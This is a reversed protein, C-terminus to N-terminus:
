KNDVRVAFTRCTAMAEPLFKQRELDDKFTKSIEAVAGLCGSVVAGAKVARTLHQSAVGTSFVQGATLGAGQANGQTGGNFSGFVSYADDTEDAFKANQAQRLQQLLAEDESLFDIERDVAITHKTILAELAVPDKTPGIRAIDAQVTAVAAPDAADGTAAQLEALRANLRELEKLKSANDDKDKRAESLQTQLGAVVTRRKSVANELSSIKGADTSTEDGLKNKAVLKMLEYTVHTCEASSEPPCHKAVAVPVYAADLSRYGVNVVLGPTEPTGSVVSAGIQKSSSYVLAAQEVPYCASLLLASGLVLEIRRSKM